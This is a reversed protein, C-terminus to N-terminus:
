LFLVPTERGHADRFMFETGVEQKRLVLEYLALARRIIEAGTVADSM